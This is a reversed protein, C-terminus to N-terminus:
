PVDAVDFSWRSPIACRTAGLKVGTVGARRLYGGVRRSIRPGLLPRVPAKLTLFVADHPFVARQRLYAILAEGVVPVLPVDERTGGKPRRAHIVDHRWDLDPLRLAAVDCARLGCYALLVMIAYDRCGLPTTLDVSALTRQIDPWPASRPMAELPYLHPTVVHSRLDTEMLGRMHLYGLFGRLSSALSGISERALRGSAQILHRDIQEVGIRPLDEETRAHIDALFREVHRRQREITSACMGRHEDLFAIYERVCPGHSEAAREAPPVIGEARLFELLLTLPSRWNRRKLRGDERLGPASCAASLFDEIEQERLADVPNGQRELYADFARGIRLYAERTSATYGVRELYRAFRELAPSRGGALPGSRPTGM